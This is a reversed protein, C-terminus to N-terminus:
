LLASARKEDWWSAVLFFALICGYLCLASPAPLYGKFLNLAALLAASLFVLALLAFSNKSCRAYNADTSAHWVLATLGALLGASTVGLGVSAFRSGLASLAASGSLGLVSLFFLIVVKWVQVAAGGKWRLYPQQAFWLIDRGGVVIGTPEADTTGFLPPGQRVDYADSNRAIDVHWSITAKALKQAGQQSVLYAANSGCLRGPKAGESVKCGPGATNLLILDWGPKTELLCRDLAERLGDTVLPVADDELVLAPGSNDSAVRQSVARHSLAIALTKDPAASSMVTLGKANRNPYLAPFRQVSLGAIGRLPAITRELREPEQELNIIWVKLPGHLRHLSPPTDAM